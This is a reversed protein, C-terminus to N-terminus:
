NMVEFALRCYFIAWFSQSNLEPAVVLCVVFSRLVIWVQLLVPVLLLHVSGSSSSVLYLRVHYEQLLVLLWKVLDLLQLL